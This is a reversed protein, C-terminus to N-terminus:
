LYINDVCLLSLIAYSIMCRFLACVNFYAGLFLSGFCRLVLFVLLVRVSTIRLILCYGACSGLGCLIPCWIPDGVCVVDGSAFM